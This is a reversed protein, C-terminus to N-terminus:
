MRIGTLKWGVLGSRSFLLSPSASVGPLQLSQSDVKVAFTNFSEYGMTVQMNTSALQKVIADLSQPTVLKDVMPDAMSSAMMSGIQAFPDNSTSQSASMSKVAEKMNSRLEPFDINEAIATSDGREIAGKMSNLTLYPTAYLGIGLLLFIGTGIMAPYKPMTM